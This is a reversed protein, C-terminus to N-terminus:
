APRARAFLTVDLGAAGPLDAAQFVVRTLGPGRLYRAMVREVVSLHDLDKLAIEADVVDTFSLGLDRFTAAYKEMVEQAQREIGGAQSGAVGSLWADDGVRIAPVLVGDKSPETREISVRVAPSVAVVSARVLGQDENASAGITTRVPIAGGFAELYLANMERMYTLDALYVRASVVDAVGCGCRRLADRLDALTSRMQDAFPPPSGDAGAILADSSAAALCYVDSSSTAPPPMDGATPDRAGDAQDACAVARLQFGAQGPLRPVLVFTFALAPHTFSARVSRAIAECWDPRTVYAWAGVVQSLQFGAQRFVTRTRETVDRVDADIRDPMRSTVASGERSFLGPGWYLDRRDRTMM